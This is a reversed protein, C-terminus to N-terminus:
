PPSADPDNDPSSNPSANPSSNPSANPSANPSSNPGDDEVGDKAAAKNLNLVMPAAYVAFVSLGLKALAGRRAPDVDAAKKHDDFKKSM